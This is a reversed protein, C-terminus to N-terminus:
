GLILHWTRLSGEYFLGLGEKMYELGDWQRADVGSSGGAGMGEVM